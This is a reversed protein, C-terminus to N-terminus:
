LGVVTHAFLEGDVSDARLVAFDASGALRDFRFSADVDGGALAAERQRVGHHHSGAREAVADLVRLEEVDVAQAGDDALRRRQPRAGARRRLADVLRRGAHEVRDAQLVDADVLQPAVQRRRPRAPLHGDDDADEAAADLSYPSHAAASSPTSPTAPSSSFM